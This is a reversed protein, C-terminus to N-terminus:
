QAGCRGARCRGVAVYANSAAARQGGHCGENDRQLYDALEMMQWRTEWRTQGRTQRGQWAVGLVCVSV